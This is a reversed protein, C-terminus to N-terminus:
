PGALIADAVFCEFYSRAISSFRVRRCFTLRTLQERPLAAIGQESEALGEWCNRGLVELPSCWEFEALSEPVM